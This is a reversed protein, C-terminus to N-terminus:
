MRASRFVAGGLVWLGILALVIWIFQAPDTPLKDRVHRIPAGLHSEVDEGNMPGGWSDADGYGVQGRQGIGWSM